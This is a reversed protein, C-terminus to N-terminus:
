YPFSYINVKSLVVMMTETTSIRMANSVENRLGKKRFTLIASYPTGVEVVSLSSILLSSSRISSSFSVIVSGITM